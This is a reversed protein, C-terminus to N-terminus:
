LGAPGGDIYITGGKESAIHRAVQRAQEWLREWRLEVPATRALELIIMMSVLGDIGNKRAFEQLETIMPTLLTRNKM